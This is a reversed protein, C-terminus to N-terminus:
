DADAAGPEAFLNSALEDLPLGFDEVNDTDAHRTTVPHHGARDHPAPSQTRGQDGRRAAWEVGAGAAASRSGM